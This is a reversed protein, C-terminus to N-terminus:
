YLLVFRGHFSVRVFKLVLPNQPCSFQLAAQLDQLFEPVAERGPETDQAATLVVTVEASPWAGHLEASQARPPCDPLPSIAKAETGSQNM